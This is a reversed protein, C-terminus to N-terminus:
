GGVPVAHNRYESGPQKGGSQRHVLCDRFQGFPGMICSRARSVLRGSAGSGNFGNWDHPLESNKEQECRGDRGPPRRAQHGEVHVERDDVRTALEGRVFPIDEVRRQGAGLPHPFGHDGPILGGDDDARDRDADVRRGRSQGRRRVRGRGILSAERQGRLAEDVDVHVLDLVEGVPLADAGVAAVVDVLEQGVLHAVHERHYVFM